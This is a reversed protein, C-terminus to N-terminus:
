WCLAANELHELSMTLGGGILKGFRQRDRGAGGALVERREPRSAVDVSALLSALGAPWGIAEVGRISGLRHEGGPGLSQRDLKKYIDFLLVGLEDGADKLTLAETPHLSDAMMEVALVQGVLDRSEGDQEVSLPVQGVCIAAVGLAEMDVQVTAGDPVDGCLEALCAGAFELEDAIEDWLGSDLPHGM